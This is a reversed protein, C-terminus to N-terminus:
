ECGLVKLKAILENYFENNKFICNQERKVMKEFDNFDFWKLEEVEEDQKKFSSIPKDIIKYYCTTFANNDDRVNKVKDILLLFDEKNLNLGLEENAEMQVAELTTQNEVVHGACLAWCNPYSKKNKSRRQLLIQKKNNLPVFAVEQHFLGKKHVESRPAYYGAFEGFENFVKLNEEKDAINSKIM